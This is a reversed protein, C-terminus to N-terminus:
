AKAKQRFNRLFFLIPAFMLLEWIIGIANEIRFWDYFTRHRPGIFLILPFSVREESFPFFLMVGVGSSLGITKGTAMDLLLHSALLSLAIGFTALSSGFIKWPVLFLSFLIAFGLTHTIGGHLVRPDNYLLYSLFYDIDPLSPLIIWPLLLQWSKHTVRDEARPHLLEFAVVGALTHAVPSPM